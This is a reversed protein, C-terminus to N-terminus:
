RGDKEREQSKRKSRTWADSSTAVPALPDLSIDLRPSAATAPPTRLRRAPRWNVSMPRAALEPPDRGVQSPPQIKSTTSALPVQRLAPLSLRRHLPGMAPAPAGAIVPGLRPAFGSAETLPPMSAAAPPADAVTPSLAM